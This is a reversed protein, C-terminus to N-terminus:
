IRDTCDISKVFHNSGKLEHRCSAANVLSGTGEGLIHAGGYHCDPSLDKGGTKGKSKRIKHFPTM